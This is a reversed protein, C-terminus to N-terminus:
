AEYVVEGGIITASVPLDALTMPDVTRPNHELVVFDAYKGAELSGVDKEMFAAWAADQDITPMPM